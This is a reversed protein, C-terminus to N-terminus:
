RSAMRPAGSKSVSVPGIGVTSSFEREGPGFAVWHFPVTFALMLLIVLANYIWQLYRHDAGSFDKAANISVMLGALAFAMGAATVVWRPASFNEDPTHFIDISTLVIFTGTLLFVGGFGLMFLFSKLGTSSEKM